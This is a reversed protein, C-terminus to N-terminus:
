FSTSLKKHLTVGMRYYQSIKSQDVEGDTAFITSVQGTFGHSIDLKVKDPAVANLILGLCLSENKTLENALILEKCYKLVLAHQKCNARLSWKAAGCTLGLYLNRKDSGKKESMKYKKVADDEYQSYNLAKIINRIPEKKGTVMFYGWNMDLICPANPKMEYVPTFKRKKLEANSIYHKAEELNAYFLISDWLTVNRSRHEKLEIMWSALKHPNQSIIQGLSVIIPSLAKKNKFVGNKDMTNIATVFNEPQPHQYYYTLWNNYDFKVNEQSFLTISLLTLFIALFNKM